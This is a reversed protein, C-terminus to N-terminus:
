DNPPSFSVFGRARTLSRRRNWRAGSGFVGSLTRLGRTERKIQTLVNSLRRYWRRNASALVGPAGWAGHRRHVRARVRM